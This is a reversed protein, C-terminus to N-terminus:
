GHAIGLTGRGADPRHLPTTTTWRIAGAGTEELDDKVEEWLDAHRLATEVREELFKKDKIGQIKLGYAVNEFISKPFPNPKQFVMGVKKRLQEVNIKRDYIKQGNLRVEGQMSFGDIYDNM